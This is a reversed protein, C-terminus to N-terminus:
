VRHVQFTITSHGGVAITPIQITLLGDVYTYPRPSGNLEVSNAVLTIQTIDLLDTITPNTFPHEAHNTLVLTYTLAGELWVEKNATKTATLGNILTTRSINTPVDLPESDYHGSFLASNLLVHDAM